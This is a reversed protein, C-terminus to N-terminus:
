GFAVKLREIAEEFVSPRAGLPLRVFQDTVAPDGPFEIGPVCAIGTERWLRQSARESGCGWSRVDVASFTAGEPITTGIPLAGAGVADALRRRNDEFEILLQPRWAAVDRLAALAVAQSFPNSALNVWGLLRVVPAILRAPGFVCGVRAAVLGFTKTFSQITVVRDRGDDLALLSVHRHGDYVFAEYAEDVVMLTRHAATADLLARLEEETHVVGMPNNPNVLFLVDLRADRIDDIVGQTMHWAAEPPLDFNILQARGRLMRDVFFTPCLMGVIAGEPVLARFVCDLAQMAGNTVAVESTPDLVVGATRQIYAALAELLDPRGHAPLRTSALTPDVEALFGSPLPVTPSGALALPAQLSPGLAVSGPSWRVSPVDAAMLGAGPQIGSAPVRELEGM